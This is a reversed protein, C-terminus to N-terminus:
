LDTIKKMIYDLVDQSPSFTQEKLLAPLVDVHSEIIIEMECGNEAKLSLDAPQEIDTFDISKKEHLSDIM